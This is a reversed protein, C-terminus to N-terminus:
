RRILPLYLADRMDDPLTQFGEPDHSDLLHQTQFAYVGPELPEKPIIRYDTRSKMREVEVPVEGADTYLGM